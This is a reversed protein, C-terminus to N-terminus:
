EIFQVGFGLLTKAAAPLSKKQEMIRIAKLRYDINVACVVWLASPSLMEGKERAESKILASQPGSHFHVEQNHSPVIPHNEKELIGTHYSKVKWRVEPTLADEQGWPSDFLRSSVISRQWTNNASHFPRCIPSCIFLDSLFLPSPSVSALVRQCLHSLAASFLTLPILSPFFSPGSFSFFRHSILDEPTHFALLGHQSEMQGGREAHTHTHTHRFSHFLALALFSGMYTNTYTLELSCIHTKTHSCPREDTNTPLDVCWAQLRRTHTHRIHILLRCGRPAVTHWQRVQICDIPVCRHYERYM